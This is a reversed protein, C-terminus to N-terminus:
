PQKKEGSVQNSQEKYLSNIKVEALPYVLKMIMKVLLIMKYTSFYAHLSLILM